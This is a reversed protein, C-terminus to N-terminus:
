IKNNERKNISYFQYMLSIGTTKFFVKEDTGFDVTNYPRLSKSFFISIGVKKYFYTIDLKYGFEDNNIVEKRSKDSSNILLGYFLGVKLAINNAAQSNSFSLPYVGIVPTAEIYGYKKSCSLPNRYGKQIYNLETGFLMYKKYRYHFSTGAQYGNFSGSYSLDNVNEPLGTIKSKNHNIGAFVNFNVQAETSSVVCCLIFCNFLIKKM